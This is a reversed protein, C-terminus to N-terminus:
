NHASVKRSTPTMEHVFERAHRLTELGKGDARGCNALLSRYYNAATDRWGLAEAARGAGLLANFRNPDSTLVGEYQHLADYFRGDLFLMQALMERAPVEAREEGLGDQRDAVPELLAVAGTLDGQAFRSWARIEDPFAANSSGAKLQPYPSVSSELEEGAAKGSEADGLHGAAIAHALLAQARTFWNPGQTPLRAAAMWDQTEIVLLAPFRAEVIAYYEPYRPDVESAKVTRAEEVMAAALVPEGSQLYAYELFDM